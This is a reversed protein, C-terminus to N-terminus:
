TPWSARFPLRGPSATPCPWTSNLQSLHTVGFFAINEIDEVGCVMAIICLLLIDVLLHKKRREIRPDPIISLSTRIDM